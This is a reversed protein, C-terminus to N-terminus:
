QGRTAGIGWGGDVISCMGKIRGANGMKWGKMGWVGAIPILGLGSVEIVDKDLLLTYRLLLSWYSLFFLVYMTHHREGRVTHTNDVSGWM